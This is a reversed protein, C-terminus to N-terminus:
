IDNKNIQTLVLNYNKNVYQINVIITDGSKINKKNFDIKTDNSMNAYYLYGTFIDDIEVFIGNDNVGTVIGVYEKTLDLKEVEDPLIHQIYKKNSVVFIGSGDNDNRVYNEIMVMKETGILSDFDLIKNASALGGPMFANVGMIDVIYGGKNKGVIKATYAVSPNKLQNFFEKILANQFGKTLSGSVDYKNSEIYVYIKNNSLFYKRSEDNTIINIFDEKTIGVVNFFANEKSLKIYVDIFNNCLVLLDDTDKNYSEIDTLLLLDGVNVDKPMVKGDANLVFTKEYLAKMEEIYEIPYDKTIIKDRRSQKSNNIKVGM